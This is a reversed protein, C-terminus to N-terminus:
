RFIGLDAMARNGKRLDGGELIGSEWEGLNRQWQGMQAMIKYWRAM